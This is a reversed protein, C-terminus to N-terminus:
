ISYRFRVGINKGPKPIINLLLFYCNTYGTLEASLCPSADPATVTSRTGVTHVREDTSLHALLYSVALCCPWECGIHHNRETRLPIDRPRKSDRLTQRDDQMDPPHAPYQAICLLHLSYQIGWPTDMPVILNLRQLRPCDFRNHLVFILRVMHQLSVPTESGCGGGPWCLRYMYSWCLKFLWPGYFNLIDEIETELGPNSEAIYKFM